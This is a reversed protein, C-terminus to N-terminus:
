VLLPQALRKAAREEDADWQRYTADKPAVPRAIGAGVGVQSDRM